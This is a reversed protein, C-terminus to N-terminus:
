NKDHYIIDIYNYLIRDYEELIEYKIVLMLNM